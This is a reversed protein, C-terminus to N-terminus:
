YPVISIKYTNTCGVTCSTSKSTVYLQLSPSFITDGCAKRQHVKCRYEGSDCLSVSLFTLSSVGTNPALQHWSVNRKEGTELQMCSEGQQRCWTVAPRPQYGYRVTCSLTLSSSVQAVWSRKEPVSIETPCELVSVNISHSIRSVNGRTTCRYLGSDKMSINTFHLFLFAADPDEQSQEWQIKIHASENMPACRSSMEIKCWEVTLTSGCHQVTCNIRLTQKTYTMWVTNRKVRLDPSCEKEKKTVYLQLSPSFITDGCAKRQHVKCRYEGSDCLSVSLFTLSSVGTNPALQHWSVNRKEGTELQMCSEGQQRCWTVAPRAPLRISGHLEADSVVLSPRGVIKERAGLNRNPM